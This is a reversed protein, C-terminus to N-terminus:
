EGGELWELFADRPILWLGSTPAKRAPISGARCWARVTATCVGCLVAVDEVRLVPPLDRSM